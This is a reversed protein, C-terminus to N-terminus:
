LKLQRRRNRAGGQGAQGGQGGRGGRAPGSQKFRKGNRSTAALQWPRRQGVRKGKGGPGAQRTMKKRRV